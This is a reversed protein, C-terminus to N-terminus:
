IRWACACSDSTSSFSSRERMVAGIAPRTTVPSRDCRSPVGTSNVNPTCYNTGIGTRVVQLGNISDFLNAISLHVVVTDGSVSVWRGFQDDAAGDSATLKQQVSWSAGARVFVYM